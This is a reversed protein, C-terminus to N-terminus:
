LYLYNGHGIRAYQQTALGPGPCDAWLHGCDYVRRYLSGNSKWGRLM